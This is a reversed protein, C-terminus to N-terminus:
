QSLGRLADRTVALLHNLDEGDLIAQIVSRGGLSALPSVLWGALTWDDVGGGRFSELIEPLGTLIEDGHNFQFTPYVVLGDATQLGLLTRSERREAVAQWSIGGLVKM